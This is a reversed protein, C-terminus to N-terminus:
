HYPSWRSRCEKGVRREESRKSDMITPNIPDHYDYRSSTIRTITQGADSGSMAYSMFVYQSGYEKTNRGYATVATDIDGILSDTGSPQDDVGGNNFENCAGALTLPQFISSDNIIALEHMYQENGSLVIFDSGDPKTIIGSDVYNAM